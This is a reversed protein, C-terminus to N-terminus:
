VNVTRFNKQQKKSERWVEVRLHTPIPWPPANPQRRAREKEPQSGPPFIELFELPLPVQQHYRPAQALAIALSAMFEPSDKADEGILTAAMETAQEPTIEGLQVKVFLRQLAGLSGSQKRVKKEGLNPILPQEASKTLFDSVAVVQDSITELGSIFSGYNGIAFYLATLAVYIRGKGKISGEEIVLSLSYDPIYLKNGVNLEWRDFLELSYTELASRSLTPAPFYFDATGIDIM